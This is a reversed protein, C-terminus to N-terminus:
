RSEYSVGKIMVCNILSDYIDNTLRGKYIEALEFLREARKKCFLDSAEQITKCSGLITNKGDITMVARYRNGHKQVGTPLERWPSNRTQYLRNIIRPVMRCAEPSYNMNGQILIDKDLEWDHESYQREYWEAFVQFNHWESSVTCDKYTPYREKHESNLARALMNRWASYAKTDRGGLSAQHAGVGHYGVNQCMPRFPNKVRGRNLDGLRVEILCDDHGDFYIKVKQSCVIEALFATCGSNVVFVDGAKIKSM